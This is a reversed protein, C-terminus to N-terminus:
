PKAGALAAEIIAEVVERREHDALGGCGGEAYYELGAEIMADTVVRAGALRHTAETKILGAVQNSKRAAIDRFEDRERKVQEYLDARVYEVPELQSPSECSLWTGTKSAWIREPAEVM